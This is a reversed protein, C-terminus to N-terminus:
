PESVYTVFREYRGDPMRATFSVRHLSVLAIQDVNGGQLRREGAHPVRHATVAVNSPLTPSPAGADETWLSPEFGKSTITEKHYMLNRSGATRLQGISTAAWETIQAMEQSTRVMRMAIPFLQFAGMIGIALIALAILVELPTFGRNERM